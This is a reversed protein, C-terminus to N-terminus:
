EIEDWFDCAERKLHAGPTPVIDLTLHEDRELSYRPWTLGGGNPDGTYAFRGWAQMVSRSLPLEADSLSIGMGANGWLFFLEVGHTAGVPHAIPHDLARAWEYLFV